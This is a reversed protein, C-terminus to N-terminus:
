LETAEKILKEIEFYRDSKSHIDTESLIKNLMDLMEKAKIDELAQNYGNLYDKEHQRSFVSSSSKYKAYEKARQTGKFEM